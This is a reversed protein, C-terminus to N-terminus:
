PESRRFLETFRELVEARNMDSSDLRVVTVKERLDEAVEEFCAAVLSVYASTFDREIKRRRARLRRMLVETRATLHVVAKPTPLASSVLCYYRYFTEFEEATLDARHRLAKSYALSTYIHQDLISGDAAKLAQHARLLLTEMQCPLAFSRDGHLYRTLYTDGRGDRQLLKIDPVWVATPTQDIYRKLLTTKGVAPPGVVAIFDGTAERWMQPHFGM